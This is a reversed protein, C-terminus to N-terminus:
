GFAAVMAGIAAAGLFIVVVLALVVNGIIPRWHRPPPRRLTSLVSRGAPWAFGICVLGSAVGLVTLLANPILMLLGLFALLAGV